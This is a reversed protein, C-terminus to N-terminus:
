ASQERAWGLESGAAWAFVWALVAFVAAWAWDHAAGTWGVAALAMLSVGLLVAGSMRAQTAELAQQERCTCQCEPHHCDLHAGRACLTCITSTM